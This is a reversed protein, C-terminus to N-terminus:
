NDNPNEELNPQFEWAFQPLGHQSKGTTIFGRNNVSLGVASTLLPGEFPTKEIWLDTTFDYAWTSTYPVGAQEGTSIYARDGIVFVAGNMRMITTYSDDFADSSANTISHLPSWNDATKAPDFVLFESVLTNSNTGTALYAKNAHVFVLSSYRPEGKFAVITWSDDAAHYQYFDALANKGDYGTGVYGSAGISFATAESRSKGPFISSIKNWTNSAPDFRYFDSLYDSGNFGTGCIGTNGISFAVASCREAGLPLGAVQEWFNKVPDFKWFDGLYTNTSDLGSGLYIYNGITFSVAESRGQFPLDSVKAWNGVDDNLICCKPDCSDLFIATMVLFQFPLMKKM